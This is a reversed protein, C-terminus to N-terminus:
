GIINRYRRGCHPCRYDITLQEILKHCKSCNFPKGYQIKDDVVEVHVIEGRTTTINTNSSGPTNIESENM